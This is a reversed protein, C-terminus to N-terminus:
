VCHKELGDSICSGQVNGATSELILAQYPKGIDRTFEELQNEIDGAHVWGLNM